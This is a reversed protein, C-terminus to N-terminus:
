KFIRRACGHEGLCRREVSLARAGDAIMRQVLCAVLRWFEGLPRKQNPTNGGSTAPLQALDSSLFRFPVGRVLRSQGTKKHSDSCVLVCTCGSSSSNLDFGGSLPSPPAYPMKIEVGGEDTTKTPRPNRGGAARRRSIVRTPTLQM